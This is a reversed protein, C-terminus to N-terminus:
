HLGTYGFFKVPAGMCRGTGVKEGRGGGRVRGAGVVPLKGLLYASCNVETNSKSGLLYKLYNGTIFLFSLPEHSILQFAFKDFYPSGRYM